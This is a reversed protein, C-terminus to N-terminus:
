TASVGFHERLQNIFKRNRSKATGEPIGLRESIEAFTWGELWLEVVDKYIPEIEDIIASVENWRLTRLLEQELIAAQQEEAIVMIERQKKENRWYAQCKSRTVRKIWKDFSRIDATGKRRFRRIIALRVESYVDDLMEPDGVEDYIIKRILKEYEGILIDVVDFDGNQIKKLLITDEFTSSM